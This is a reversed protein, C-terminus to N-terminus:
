VEFGGIVVGMNNTHGSINQFMIKLYNDQTIVFPSQINLQIGNIGGQYALIESTTYNQLLLTCLHQKELDGANVPNCYSTAQVVYLAKGHPIKYYLLLFDFAEVGAQYVVLSKQTGKISAYDARNSINSATTNFDPLDSM